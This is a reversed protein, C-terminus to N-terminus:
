CGRLHGHKGAAGLWGCCRLLAPPPTLVGLVRNRGTSDFCTPSDIRCRYLILPTSTDTIMFGNEYPLLSPRHSARCSSPLILPQSVSSSTSANRVSTAAHTPQVSVTLEDFHAP